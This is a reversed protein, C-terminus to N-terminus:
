RAAVTKPLEFARFSGGQKIGATTKAVEGSRLPVAGGCGLAFGIGQEGDQEWTIPSSGVGMRVQLTRVEEGIKADFAEIFDEATGTFVLDGATTLVGAGLPARNKYDWVDIM